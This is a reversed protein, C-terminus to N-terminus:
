MHVNGPKLREIGLYYNARFDVCFSRPKGGLGSGSIARGSTSIAGTAPEEDSRSTTTVVPLGMISLLPSVTSVRDPYGNGARCSGSIADVNRM